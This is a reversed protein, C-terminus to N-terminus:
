SLYKTLTPEFIKLISCFAKLFRWVSKFNQLLPLNKGFRTVSTKDSKRSTQPWVRITLTSAYIVVWFTYIRNLESLLILKIPQNLYCDNPPCSGQDLPLPLRSTNSLDYTRIGAGYVPRVNKMKIQLRFQLTQKSLGFFSLPRPQGMLFIMQCTKLPFYIM